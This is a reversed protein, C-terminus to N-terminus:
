ALGGPPHGGGGDMKRQMFSQMMESSVGPVAGTPVNVGMGMGTASGGGGGSFGPMRSPFQAHGEGAAGLSTENTISAASSPSAGSSSSIEM